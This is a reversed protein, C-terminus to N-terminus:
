AAERKTLRCAAVVALCVVGSAAQLLIPVRYWRSAPDSDPVDVTLSVCVAAASIGAYVLGIWWLDRLSARTGEPLDPLPAFLGWAALAWLPATVALVARPSLGADSALASWDGFGRSGPHSTNNLLDVCSGLLWLRVLLAAGAGRARPAAWRLLPILAAAVAQASLPVALPLPDNEDASLTVGYVRGISLTVPFPALVACGLGTAALAACHSGEHISTQFCSLPLAGLVLWVTAGRSPFWSRRLRALYSRGDM